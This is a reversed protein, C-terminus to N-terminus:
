LDAGEQSNMLPSPEWEGRRAFSCDASHPAFVVRNLRRSVTSTCQVLDVTYRIACPDDEDNASLRGYSLQPSLPALILDHVAIFTTIILHVEPKLKLVNDITWFYLTNLILPIIVMVM